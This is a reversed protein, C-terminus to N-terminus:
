LELRRVHGAGPRLDSRALGHCGPGSPDPAFVDPRRPHRGEAAPAAAPASEAMVVDGVQVVDTIRRPAPGLAGSHNPRAWAVDSLSLSEQHPEGAADIWGLKAADGATELVAALKWDPLMGPPRVMTPLSHVWGTRLNAADLQAVPGRWGGRQRDYSMLGARLVRDMTAQLGPDLSTRVVLGGQNTADAGFRDVM